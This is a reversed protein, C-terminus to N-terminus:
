RSIDRVSGDPDISVQLKELLMREGAGSEALAILSLFYERRQVAMTKLDAGCFQSRMKIEIMKTTSAIVAEFNVREASCVMLKEMSSFAANNAQRIRESFEKDGCLSYLAAHIAADSSRARLTREVCGFGEHRYIKESAFQGCLLKGILERKEGSVLCQPSSSAASCITALLAFLCIGTRRM